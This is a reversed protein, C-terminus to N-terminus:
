RGALLCALERVSSEEIDRLFSIIESRSLVATDARLFTMVKKRSGHARLYFRRGIRDQSTGLVRIIRTDARISSILDLAARSDLGAIQPEIGSTELPMVNINCSLDVSREREQEIQAVAVAVQAPDHKAAAYAPVAACWTRRVLERLDASTVDITIPSDQAVSGTANMEAPTIRNHCWALFFAKKEGGIGALLAAAIALFVTEQSARLERSLFYLAVALAESEIYVEVFRSPEPALARGRFMDVPADVLQRRWYRMSRESVMRGAAGREHEAYDLPHMRSSLPTSDVAMAPAALLRETERAINQMDWGDAAMHFVAIVLYRPRGDSTVIAARFPFDDLVFPKRQFEAALDVAVSGAEGAPVSYEAVEISGEAPVHQYPEGAASIPYITRLPERRQLLVQLGVLVDALSTPEPIDIIQRMNFQVHEPAFWKAEAWICKQGWTLPADGTRGGTFRVEHIAM